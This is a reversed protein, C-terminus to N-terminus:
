ASGAELDPAEIKVAEAVEGIGIRFHGFRRRRVLRQAADAFGAELEFQRNAEDQVMPVNRAQRQDRVGPAAHDGPVEGPAAGVQDVAEDHEAWDSPAIRCAIWRSQGGPPQNRQLVLPVAEGGIDRSAFRGHQRPAMERRPTLGVQVRVALASAASRSRDLCGAARELIDEVGPRAFEAVVRAQDTRRDRDDAAGPISHPGIGVRGAQEVRHVGGRHPAVDLDASRGM